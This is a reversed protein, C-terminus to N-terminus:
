VLGHPQMMVNWRCLAVSRTSALHAGVRGLGTDFAAAAAAITAIRNVLPNSVPNVAVPISYANLRGAFANVDWSDSKFHVHGGEITTDLGFVPDRYTALAIGRGLQQYADGATLEFSGPKWTTRKKELVFAKTRDSGSELAIQNTFTMSASVNGYAAELQNEHLLTNEDPITADEPDRRSAVLAHDSFRFSFPTEMVAEVTNVPVVTESEAFAIQPLLLVVLLTAAATLRIRRM